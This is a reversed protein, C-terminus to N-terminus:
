LARPVFHPITERDIEFRAIEPGDKSRYLVFTLPWSYEWGRLYHWNEAASEASLIGDPSMTATEIEFEHREEDELVAYFMKM